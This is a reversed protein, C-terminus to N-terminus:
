KIVYRFAQVANERRSVEENLRQAVANRLEMQRRALEPLGLRSYLRGLRYHNLPSPDLRVCAEMQTRADALQNASDYAFGLECRAIAADPPAAQLAQIMQRQLAADGKEMAFRLKLVNCVTADWRCLADITRTPPADHGETAIRALYKYAPELKPDLEIADALSTEAEDIQGM